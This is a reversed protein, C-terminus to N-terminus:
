HATSSGADQSLLTGARYDRPSVGTWHKFARAFVAPDSFGVSEAIESLPMAHRTLLLIAKDRRVLDKIQQYSTGEEKLKRIMTRKTMHLTDAAEEIVPFGLRLHKKLLRQLDYSVSFDTKPQNFLELPCRQIFAKLSARNQDIGRDLFDTRFSFGQFAANFRHRGPFLYSYESVHAPTPYTFFIENLTLNESILWSAFRHWALLNIESWLYHSDLEPSNIHFKLTTTGSEVALELKFANTVMDYFQKGVQLAKGLNPEQIALKGMMYFAGRPIPSAGLGMSEDQLQDWISLVMVALKETEVRVDPSDIVDLSLGASHMLEVTDLGKAKALHYLQSVFINAASM